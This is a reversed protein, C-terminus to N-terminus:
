EYYLIFRPGEERDEGNWSSLPRFWVTDNPDYEVRAYAIMAENTESHPGVEKVRYLKQNKLNRWIQGRKPIM